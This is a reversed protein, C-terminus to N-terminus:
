PKVVAIDYLHTASPYPVENISLTVGMGTLPIQYLAAFSTTGSTGADRTRVGALPQNYHLTEVRGTADNKRTVTGTAADSTLVTYSIPAPDAGTVTAGTTAPFVNYSPDWSRTQTGVAPIALTGLKSAVIVNQPNATDTGTPNTSGFVAFAGSPARYGYVTAVTQTPNKVDVGGDSREAASLAVTDAQCKWASDYECSTVVREEGFTVQGAIHQPSTVTGSQVTSWTGRLASYSHSQVPFIYGVTGATNTGSQHARFAGVGNAGMVVKVDTPTGALSGSATFVCSETADATLTLVDTTGPTTVKMNKFDVTRTDVKGSLDITRYTGSLASPCGALSGGSVAQMANRLGDDSKVLAALAIQNVVEPLSERTIKAALADLLQDYANGKGSSTAAVLDGKVPDVAGLDVGANKLATVIANVAAALQEPTIADGKFGKFSDEPMAAALQAVVMETVPTVNAVAVTRRDVPILTGADVVSHLSFTNGGVTQKVEIMCPLAGNTITVSYTGAANTTATATGAACKVEVPANALAAGTAATGSVQLTPDPQAPPAVATDGGGGGGGCGAVLLAVASAALSLSVAKSKM